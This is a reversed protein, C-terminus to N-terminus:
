KEDYIQRLYWAPLDEDSPLAIFLMADELGVEITEVYFNPTTQDYVDRADAPMAAFPADVDALQQGSSPVTIEFAPDCVANYGVAYGHFNSTNDADELRIDVFFSLHASTASVVRRSDNEAPARRAPPSSEARAFPVTGLSLDTRVPTVFSPDFDDACTTVSYLLVNGEADALTRVLYEPTIYDRVTAGASVGSVSSALTRRAAAEGLVQDFHASSMGAALHRLMDYEEDNSSSEHLFVVAATVVPVAAIIAVVTLASRGVRRVAFWAGWWRRPLWPREYSRLHDFDDTSGPADGTTGM